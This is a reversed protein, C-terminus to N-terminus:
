ICVHEGMLGFVEVLQGWEGIRGGSARHLRYAHSCKPKANEKANAARLEPGVFVVACGGIGDYRRPQVAGELDM